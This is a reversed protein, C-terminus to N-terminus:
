SAQEEKTHRLPLPYAKDPIRAFYEAVPPLSDILLRFDDRRLLLVTCDDAATLWGQTKFGGSLSREGWHDGPGLIRVFDEADGGSPVRSELTGEIVSYFGDVYQGPEFLVDGKAFCVRIAGRPEFPETQVTSRPLFYDFLWNLAVRLRTSVGPLMALYFGRWLLWAPLGSLRLGFVEAVARYRGISAMTGKPNHAFPELDTGRLTRAVNDAVVRAQAVAFQATTPAFEAQESVANALPVLAADGIAWVNTMGQARLLPDTLIRGRQMPVSLSAVLPTPVSGVTTVLTKCGIVGDGTYVAASSAGALETNLRVDVGQQELKTQAYTGLREPLEPLLRAGRHVIITRVEDAAVNPYVALTRGIMENLEGAIEVGSFGGGAVVFTLLRQKLAVDETVDAHELCQLVHNRLQHADNLDRMCFGHEAFGPLMDVNTKQGLALVLQDYPRHVPKRKSGQVLEVTQADFDISRVEGMRVRIGKLMLRLPTVADLANITGAAVEPLLPQFVFYNRESILEVNADDPLRRALHRAAFAGAFGGGLVLVRSPSTM